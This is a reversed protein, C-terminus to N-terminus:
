IVDHEAFVQKFLQLVRNISYEQVSDDHMALLKKASQHAEWAIDVSAFEGSGVAKLKDSVTDGIIGKNNLLEKLKNDASEISSRWDEKTEKINVIPQPIDIPMENTDTNSNSIKNMISKQVQNNQWMRIIFYVFAMLGMLITFIIISAIPLGGDNRVVELVQTNSLDNLSQPYESVGMLNNQNLQVGITPVGTAPDIQSYIYSYHLGTNPASSGTITTVIHEISEIYSPQPM